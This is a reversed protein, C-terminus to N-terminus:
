AGASKWIMSFFCFMGSALLKVTTLLIRRPIPVQEGFM